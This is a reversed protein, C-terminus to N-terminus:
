ARYQHEARIFGTLRRALIAIRSRTLGNCKNCQPRAGHKLVEHTVKQVSTCSIKAGTRAILFATLLMLGAVGVLRSSDVEEVTRMITIDKGLFAQLLRKLSGASILLKDTRNSKRPFRGCSPGSYEPM